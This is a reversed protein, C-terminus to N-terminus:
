VREKPYLFRPKEGISSAFSLLEDRKVGWNPNAKPQIGHHTKDYADYIVERLDQRLVQLTKDNIGKELKRFAVTARRDLPMKPERNAWLNAAEWLRFERQQDWKDFDPWEDRPSPIPLGPLWEFLRDRLVWLPYLVLGVIGGWFMLQGLLPPLSSIAYPAGMLIAEVCIFVLHM